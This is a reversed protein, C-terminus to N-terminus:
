LPNPAAVGGTFLPNLVAVGGNILALPEPIGGGILAVPKKVGGLVFVIATVATTKGAFSGFPAASAGHLGLRTVGEM